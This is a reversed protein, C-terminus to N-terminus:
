ERLILSKATKLFFFFIRLGLGLAKLCAGCRRVGGRHSKICYGPVISECGQQNIGTSEQPERVWYHLTKPNEKTGQIKVM